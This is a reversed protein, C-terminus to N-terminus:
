DERSPTARVVQIALLLTAVCGLVYIPMGFWLHRTDAGTPGQLDTYATVGVALFIASLVGVLASIAVGAASGKTLFMGLVGAALVFAGAFALKAVVYEPPAKGLKFADIVGVDGPSGHRWALALVALLLLPVPAIFWYLDVPKRSM